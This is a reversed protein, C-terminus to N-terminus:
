KAEPPEKPRTTHHSLALVTVLGPEMVPAAALGLAWFKNKGVM